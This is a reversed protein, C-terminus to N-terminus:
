PKRRQEKFPTNSTEPTKSYIIIIIIFVVLRPYGPINDIDM